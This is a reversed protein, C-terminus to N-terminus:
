RTRFPRVAAEIQEMAQTLQSLEDSVSSAFGEMTFDGRVKNPDLSVAALSTAATAATAAAAAVLYNVEACIVCGGCVGCAGCAGCGSSAAGLAPGFEDVGALSIGTDREIKGRLDNRDEIWIVEFDGIKRSMKTGGPIWIEGGSFEIFGEEARDKSVDGLTTISDGLSLGPTKEVLNLAREKVRRTDGDGGLGEALSKLMSHGDLKGDANFLFEFLLEVYGASIATGTESEGDILIGATHSQDTIVAMNANLTISM